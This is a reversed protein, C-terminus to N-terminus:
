EMGGYGVAGNTSFVLNEDQSLLTAADVTCASKM